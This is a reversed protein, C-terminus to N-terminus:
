GNRGKRTIACSFVAMAVLWVVLTSLSIWVVMNLCRTEQIANLVMLTLLTAGVIVWLGKKRVKKINNMM